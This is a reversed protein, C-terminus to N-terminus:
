LSFVGTTSPLDIRRPNTSDLFPASSNGSSSGSPRSGFFEISEACFHEDHPMVREDASQSM